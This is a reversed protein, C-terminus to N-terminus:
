SDKKRAPKTERVPESPPAVPKAPVGEVTKGAGGVGKAPMTSGPKPLQAPPPTAQKAPPKRAAPQQTGPAIDPKALRQQAAGAAATLFDTASYVQSGGATAPTEPKILDWATPILTYPVVLDGLEASHSKLWFAEV